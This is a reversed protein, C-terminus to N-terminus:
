SEDNNGDEAEIITPANEVLAFFNVWYNDKELAKRFSELLMDADILRGHPTAIEVLPCTDLRRAKMNDIDDGLVSCFYDNDRISVEVCCPCDQCKKPMDMDKIIVRM